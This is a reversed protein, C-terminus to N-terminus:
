KNKIWLAPDLRKREKWVEFHLESKQSSLNGIVQGAFVEDGKSVQASELNSYVTYYNGHSILIMNQYGPIFQRGVVQGAFVAKVEANSPAEIDIGNNNVKVNQHGPYTYEGFGKVITGSEVPWPLKGKLRSFDLSEKEIISSAEKTPRINKDRETNIIKEIVKDLQERRQQQTDLERALRTESSKLKGLLNNKEKLEGGLLNKQEQATILLQEKEVKRQNLQTIKIQLTRQTEVILQVQKKRYDDYQKLYRWRQVVDNLSESSFLFLWDSNNLQQRYALRMMQAYEENLRETDETLANIVTTSRQISAEIFALEAELTLILQQRNKIQKQLMLYQDLATAKTQQTQKLQGSTAEIDELLKKRKFELETITQAFSQTISLGVFVVSIWVPIILRYRM